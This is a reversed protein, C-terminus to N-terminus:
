RFLLPFYFKNEIMQLDWFYAQGAGPKGHYDALMIGQVNSAHYSFWDSINFTLTFDEKYPNTKTLNWDLPLKLIDSSATGAYDERGYWDYSFVQYTFQDVVYQWEAPLFWEQYGSNFDTNISYPSGLRLRNDAFDRQLVIWLNDPYGMQRTDYNFNEVNGFPSDIYLKVESFLPLNTHVNGWMAFVPVFIHDYDSDHWGYDMGVYRLDAAPFVHLNQPSVLSVPFACLGSPSPGKQELHIYGGPDNANLETLANLTTLETYPRPVFYFPVRLTEVDTSFTIFGYYEEMAGFDIPLDEGNLALTIDINATSNAPVTVMENGPMLFAGASDSTFEIDITYTLSADSFNELIISRTDSFTDFVEVVGWSLSVLKSDAYAISRTTVARYADVRGAGQLPLVGHAPGVLDVATNMIAAKIHVPSWEPHAEALLAAVGAIHPTAMSTGSKYTSKDGSGMLAASIASGPAAVEPKLKSDFGRPGRSSFSAVGGPNPQTTSAAVSIASDATSPSSVIYTSNGSNGAAAVVVVGISTANEIAIFKPDNTDAPGWSSGLSLNIVDVPHDLNGQGLPDMAWEIAHLVLNTSGVKGFVKLAYLKAGPAVGAGFDTGLGAAISAVHTGHGNEDLPDPDPDPIPSGWNGGADYNSGAFDYGGIVKSTPFTGYEVIKPDNASYDASYDASDGSDVFTAHTYDIGTDIIAITIGEGTHGGSYSWVDNARILSVSEMLNVEDEPARTVSKVSPISRIEDVASAPVHLMFGNLTKTFSDGIQTVEAGRINLIQDLVAAQDSKLQAIYDSQEQTNSRVLGEQNVFEILSPKELQVLIAVPIHAYAMLTHPIPGQNRILFEEITMGGEFADLLEQPLLVPEFCQPTELAPQDPLQPQNTKVQAIVPTIIFILSIWLSFIILPIKKM